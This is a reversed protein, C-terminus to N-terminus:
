WLQLGASPDITTFFAVSESGILNKPESGAPGPVIDKVLATGAASGDTKWLEDGTAPDHAVFLVQGRLRVLTTDSLDHVFPAITADKLPAVSLFTRPELPEIRVAPAPRPM